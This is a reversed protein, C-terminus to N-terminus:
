GRQDDGVAQRGDRPHIADDSQGFAADVLDTGRGLQGRGAPDIRLQQVQLGAAVGRLQGAVVDGASRVPGAVSAGWSLAPCLACMVGHLPTASAYRLDKAVRHAPVMSMRSSSVSGDEPSLPRGALPRRRWRAARHPRSTTAASLSGSMAARVRAVAPPISSESGASSPPTLTSSAPEGVKGHGSAEKSAILAFKTILWTGSGRAVMCSRARRAAGAARIARVM